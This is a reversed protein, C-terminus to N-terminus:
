SYGGGAWAGGASRFAKMELGAPSSRHVLRRWVSHHLFFCTLLLLANFVSDFVRLSVTNELQTALCLSTFVVLPKM